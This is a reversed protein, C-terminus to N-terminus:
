QSAANLDLRMTGNVFATNSSITDCTGYTVLPQNYVGYPNRWYWNNEKIVVRESGFLEDLEKFLLKAEAVSMRVTKGGLEIEIKKIKKM